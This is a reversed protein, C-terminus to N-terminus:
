TSRRLRRRRDRQAEARRARYEDDGLLERQRDHYARVRAAECPKCASEITGDVCTSFEEPPKRQECKTCTRTTTV